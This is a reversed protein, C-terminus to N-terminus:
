EDEEGDKDASFYDNIDILGEEILLRVLYELKVDNQYCLEDVGFSDALLKVKDEM